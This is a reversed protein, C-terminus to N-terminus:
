SKKSKPPAPEDDNSPPIYKNWQRKPFLTGGKKHQGFAMSYGCDNCVREFYSNDEVVRVSLRTKESKCHGCNLNNEYIEAFKAIQTFLDKNDNAVFKVAMRGCLSKYNVEM